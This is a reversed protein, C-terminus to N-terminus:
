GQGPKAESAGRDQLRKTWSKNQEAAEADQRPTTCVKEKRVRSGVVSVNRCKVVDMPDVAAMGSPNTALRQKLSAVQAKTQSKLDGSVPITPGLPGSTAGYLVVGEADAEPAALILARVQFGGEACEGAVTQVTRAAPESASLYLIAMGNESMQQAKERAQQPTAERMDIVPVEVAAAAFATPAALMLSVLGIFGARFRSM